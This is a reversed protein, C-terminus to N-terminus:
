VGVTMPVPDWVNSCSCRLVLWAVLEPVAVTVDSLPVTRRPIM